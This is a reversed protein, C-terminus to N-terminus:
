ILALIGTLRFVVSIIAIVELRTRGDFEAVMGRVTDSVIDM